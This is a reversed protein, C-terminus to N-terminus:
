ACLWGAAAPRRSGRRRRSPWLRQVCIPRSRASRRTRTPRRMVRTCSRQVFTGAGAELAADVLVRAAEIRLRDNEEWADPQESMERPPIRTALHLVADAGSVARAVADADYLDLERHSPASLDHGDAAAVPGLARGLVGGGGTVFLQM